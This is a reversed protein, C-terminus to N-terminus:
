LARLQWNITQIAARLKLRAQDIQTGVELNKFIIMESCALDGVSMQLQNLTDKLEALRLAEVQAANSSNM